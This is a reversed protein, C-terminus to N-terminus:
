VQEPLDIPKKDRNGVWFILMALFFVSAAFFFVVHGNTRDWLYGAVISGLSWGLGSQAAGSLAQATASLGPPASESVYSVVAVWFFGFCLGMGPLVIIILAPTPALAVLTWVLTFGLLGAIILRKHSYGALWRSGFYMLVVEPLSNATWALGVQAETGGLALIHLGLFGIYASIGMGLLTMATLFSMYSRQHTLTRLGQLLGVTHPATKIPLLFSLGACVIALLSGQLWFILNLNMSTLLQGVVFTALVFGITGWMRQQGYSSGTRKTMDMVASDVISGIPTRFFSLATVLVMLPWFSSVGLFLFAVLGAMFACFALVPRHIQWRDAIAGWFPNAILATMPAISGLWGIQVGSLGKSELYINLFPVLCGVAGFFLLYYVKAIFLGEKISAAARTPTLVPAPPSRRFISPEEKGSYTSKLHWLLSRVRHAVFASLLM